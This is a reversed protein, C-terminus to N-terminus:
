ITTLRSGTKSTIDYVIVALGGKRLKDAIAAAKEAKRRYYLSVCPTGDKGAKVGYIAYKDKKAM